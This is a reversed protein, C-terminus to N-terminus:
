RALAPAQRKANVITTYLIENQQQVATLGTSIGAAAKV